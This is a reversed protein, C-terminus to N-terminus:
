KSPEPKAPAAWINARLWNRPSNGANLRENQKRSVHQRQMRFNLCERAIEGVRGEEDALVQMTSLLRKLAAGQSLRMPQPLRPKRVKPPGTRPVSRLGSRGKYIMDLVNDRQSGLWLHRPNVCKPNDCSHCVRQEGPWTDNAVMFAVRNARLRRGDACFIGYGEVTTPGTWPWCSFADFRDASKEFRAVDKATLTPPVPNPSTM